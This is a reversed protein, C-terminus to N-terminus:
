YARSSRWRLWRLVSIPEYSVFSIGIHREREYWKKLRGLKKPDSQKLSGAVYTPVSVLPGHPRLSGARGGKIKRKEVGVIRCARFVRLLRPLECVAVSAVLQNEACRDFAPRRLSAVSSVSALREGVADGAPVVCDHLDPDPEAERMHPSRHDQCGACLLPRARLWQLRGWGGLLGLRVSRIFSLRTACCGYCCFRSSTEYDAEWRSRV